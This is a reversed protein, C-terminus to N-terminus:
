FNRCFVPSSDFFEEGTEVYVGVSEFWVFDTPPDGAM